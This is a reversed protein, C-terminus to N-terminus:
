KTQPAAASEAKSGSSAGQASSPTVAENYAGSKEMPRSNLAATPVETAGAPNTAAATPPPTIPTPTVAIGNEKQRQIYAAAIRDQVRAVAAQEVAVDAAAKDKAAQAAAAQEPTPPPLKAAVSGAMCLCSLVMSARLRSSRPSLSHSLRTM